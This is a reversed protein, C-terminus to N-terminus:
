YQVKGELVWEKNLYRDVSAQKLELCRSINMKEITSVFNDWEADIDKNGTIFAVTNEAVYTEIDVYLKQYEASEEATFSAYMPTMIKDTQKEWTEYSKQTWTNGTLANLEFSATWDMYGVLNNQTYLSKVNGPTM